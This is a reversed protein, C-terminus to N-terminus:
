RRAPYSDWSCVLTAMKCVKTTVPGLWTTRRLTKYARALCLLAWVWLRCSARCCAPEVETSATGTAAMMPNDVAITAFAGSPAGEANAQSTWNAATGTAFNTAGVAGAYESQSSM